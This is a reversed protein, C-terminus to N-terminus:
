EMFTKIALVMLWILGVTFIISLALALITKRTEQRRNLKIKQRIADLEEKTAQQFSLKQGGKVDIFDQMIKFYSKKKRLAQNAKMRAIMDFIHGAGGGLM